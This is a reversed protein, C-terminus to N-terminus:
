HMDVLFLDLRGDDDYDFAKCGVTGWPVKGLVRDRADVFRGHGDNEYLHSAGFMNAVAVDQDGDDDFDFVATDGSWGSGALGSTRTADEFTGDGRNRFFRNDEKPSEVLSFLNARGRRQKTTPDVDDLTWRATNSVLLDLLGDGDADFFTASQSHAVTAVGAAETVDSFRGGGVNRFLHDGGMTTTVFLDERGDNDYDGFVASVSVVDPLAIPGSTATVDSFKGGGLNRYLANPGLQNCFYVDDLGDGDVDAVAVGCGHDYLNIKFKEGQEAPLFATKFTIGAADTADEFGSFRPGSPAPPEDAAGAPAAGREKWAWV